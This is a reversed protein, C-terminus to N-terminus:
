TITQIGDAKIDGEKCIFTKCCTNMGCDVPTPSLSKARKADVEEPQSSSFSESAVMIENAQCMNGRGWYHCSDVLCHINQKQEM